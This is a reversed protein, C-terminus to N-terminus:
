LALTLALVIVGIAVLVGVLAAALGIKTARGMKQRLGLQEAARKIMRRGDESNFRFDAVKGFEGHENFAFTKQVSVEKVTGVTRSMTWNLRPVPTGDSINAGVDWVVEYEDDTITYSNAAEDVIVHHTFVRKVGEKYLLTYYAADVVNTRVDFGHETREVLFATGAADARVREFFEEVTTM